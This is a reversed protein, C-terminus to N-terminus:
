GELSHRTKVHACKELLYELEENRCRIVPTRMLEWQLGTYVQNCIDARTENEIPYWDEFQVDKYPSFKHLHYAQIFYIQGCERCRALRRVGKKGDDWRYLYFRVSGDENKPQPDYEKMIEMYEMLQTRCELNRIHTCALIEQEREM